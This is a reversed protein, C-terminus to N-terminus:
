KSEDLEVVDFQPFIGGYPNQQRSPTKPSLLVELKGTKTLSDYVNDWRLEPADFYDKAINFVGTPLISLGQRASGDRTKLRYSLTSGLTTSDELQKLTPDSSNTRNSLNGGSLSSQRLQKAVARPDFELMTLLYCKLFLALDATSQGNCFTEFAFREERLSTGPRTPVTIGPKYIGNNGYSAAAVIKQDQIIITEPEDNRQEVCRYLDGEIGRDETRSYVQIGSDTLTLKLRAESLDLKLLVNTGVAHTVIRQYYYDKDALFNLTKGNRLRAPRVKGEKVAIGLENWFTPSSGAMLYKRWGSIVDETFHGSGALMQFALNYTTYARMEEYVLRSHKKTFLFMGGDDRVAPKNVSCRVWKGTPSLHIDRPSIGTCASRSGSVGTKANAEDEGFISHGPKLYWVNCSVAGYKIDDDIDLEEIDFHHDVGVILKIIRAMVDVWLNFPVIGLLHPSRYLHMLKQEDTEKEGAIRLKRDKVNANAGVKTNASVHWYLKRANLLKDVECQLIKDTFNKDRQLAVYRQQLSVDIFRAWFMMEVSDKVMGVESVEQSPLPFSINAGEEFRIKYKNVVTVEKLWNDVGTIWEPMWRSRCRDPLASSRILDTVKKSTQNIRPAKAVKAAKIVSTNSTDPDKSLRVKKKERKKELSSSSDTKKRVVKKREAREM